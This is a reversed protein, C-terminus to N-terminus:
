LASALGLEMRVAENDRINASIETLIARGVLNIDHQHHLLEGEGGVRVADKSHQLQNAAYLIASRMSAIAFVDADPDSLALLHAESLNPPLAGAEIVGRLETATIYEAM